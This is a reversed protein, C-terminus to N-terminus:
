WTIQSNACPRLQASVAASLSRAASPPLLPKAAVVGQLAWPRAVGPGADGSSCAANFFVEGRGLLRRAMGAGDDLGEGGVLV